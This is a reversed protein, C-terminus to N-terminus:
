VGRRAADLGSARAGPIKKLRALGRMLDGLRYVFGFANAVRWLAVEKCTENRATEKNEVATVAERVASCILGHRAMDRMGGPALLLCWNIAFGAYILHNLGLKRCVAFLQPANTAIYEYDLPRAEPAFDINVFGRHVDPRNRRGIVCRDAMFRRMKKYTPDPAITGPPAPEDTKLALTKKYGPYDKCYHSGSAVHILPLSSARAAKLLPPFVERCIKQARPIYEVSRWWGPYKKYTGCDWAHMIVLATRRSDIEIAAKKWGGYGEAPVARSYDADFQQYYYAPIKIRM